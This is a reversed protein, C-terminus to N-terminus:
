HSRDKDLEALKQQECLTYICYGDHEQGDDKFTLGYKALLRNVGDIIDLADSDNHITFESM